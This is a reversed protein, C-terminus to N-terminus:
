SLGNKYGFETPGYLERRKTVYEADCQMCMLRYHGNEMHCAMKGHGEAELESWPKYCESCESPPRGTSLATLAELHRMECPLCQRYGTHEIMEAPSRFRQCTPCREAMVVHSM